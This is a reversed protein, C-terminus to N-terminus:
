LLRRVTEIDATMQRVLSQADAFRETGRVRDVFELEVIRDYLDGSWDLLHAEVRLDVDRFTVNPGVHIAAQVVNGDFRARGAYVGGAPVLTEWGSLNITPFGLERGRRDGPVVRGRLRYPETLWRGAAAVDGAAIAARIRSSSIYAGDDNLPPVIELRVQRARCLEALRAVDAGRGKGFRFNPGEVMAAMGLRDILIREFFEDGTLGLLALDTPYAIVADVQQRALLETRREIWTLPKPAREPDLLALPHPDFTFVVAAGGIENATRRLTRLLSVHGHHVGDFNGVAICAGRLRSDFEELRRIPQM